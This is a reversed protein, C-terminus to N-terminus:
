SRRIDRQLSLINKFYNKTSCEASPSLQNDSIFHKIALVMAPIFSNAVKAQLNQMLIRYVNM